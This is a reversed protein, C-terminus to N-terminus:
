FHETKLKKIDIKAQIKREEVPNFTSIGPLLLELPGKPMPEVTVSSNPYAQATDKLFQSHPFKRWKGWSSRNYLGDCM